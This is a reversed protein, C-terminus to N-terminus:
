ADPTDTTPGCCHFFAADCRQMSEFAPQLSLSQLTSLRPLYNAFVTLDTDPDDDYGAHRRSYCKDAAVRAAQTMYLTLQMKAVLQLRSVEMM